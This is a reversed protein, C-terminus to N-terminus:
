LDILNIECGLNDILFLKEHEAHIDLETCSYYTRCCCGCGPPFWPYPQSWPGGGPLPYGCGEVWGYEPWWPDPVTPWSMGGCPYSVEPPPFGYPNVDFCRKSIHPSRRAKLKQPSFFCSARRKREKVRRPNDLNLNHKRIRGRLTTIENHKADERKRERHVGECTETEFLILLLSVILFIKVCIM